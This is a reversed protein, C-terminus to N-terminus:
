ENSFIERMRKAEKNASDLEAESWAPLRRFRIESIRRRGGSRRDLYGINWYFVAGSEVLYLDEEDVETLNFEAIEESSDITRNILRATFSDEKKEIVYGEWKQLSTFKEEFKEPSYKSKHIYPSNPFKRLKDDIDFTYEPPIRLVGSTEQNSQDLFYTKSYDYQRHTDIHLGMELNTTGEKEKVGTNILSQNSM